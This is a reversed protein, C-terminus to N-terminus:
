RRHTGGTGGEMSDLAEGFTRKRSFCYPVVGFGAIAVLSFMAVVYLSYEANWHTFHWWIAYVAILAVIACLIGIARFFLRGLFGDIRDFRGAM